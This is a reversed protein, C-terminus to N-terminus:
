RASSARSNRKPCLMSTSPIAGCTSPFNILAKTRAMLGLPAYAQQPGPTSCNLGPAELTIVNPRRSVHASSIGIRSLADNREDLRGALFKTAGRRSPIGHRKDRETKQGRFILRFECFRLGNTVPNYCVAVLTIPNDGCSTPAPTPSCLRPLRASGCPTEIRFETARLSSPSDRM